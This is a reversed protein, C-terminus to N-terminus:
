MSPYTPAPLSFLHHNNITPSAPPSKTAPSSDTCPLLHSPRLSLSLTPIAACSDIRTPNTSIKPPNQVSQ